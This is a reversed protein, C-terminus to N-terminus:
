CKNNIFYSKKFMKLYKRRNLLNSIAKKKNKSKNFYEQAIKYGIFYGLDAPRNKSQNGNYLWNVINKKDMKYNSLFELKLDCENNEGFLFATKNITNGLVKETLFDAVGENISQVALDRTLNGIQQTHITEHAVMTLLDGTKGIVSKLWDSLESKETESTSAAIETGILILNESVTGGTRLCGIAFCVNPRKFNPILAEYLDLVKEIEEKKNKVNETEKRISKWFKPHKEIINIYEEANFNRLRIFEQFHESAKEIYEIQIIKISDARNSANQLKDYAKWFNDIDNTEILQKNQSFVCEFIILFFLIAVNKM